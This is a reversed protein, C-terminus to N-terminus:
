KEEIMLRIFKAELDAPVQNTVESYHTDFATNTGSVTYPYNTWGGTVLNTSAELYYNLDSANKRQVHIYELGSVGKQFIPVFGTDAMGPNGGLAYEQWNNLADGDPNDTRGTETLGPYEDDLWNLYTQQFIVANATLILDDCRIESLRLESIPNGSEAPNACLFWTGGSAPAADARDIYAAPSTLASGGDLYVRYFARTQVANTYSVDVTLRVWQSTSISTQDLVTWANAYSAGQDVSHYVNLSQNADVVFWVKANSPFEVSAPDGVRHFQVVSDFWLESHAPDSGVTQSLSSADLVQSHSSEPLPWAGTYTASYNLATVIGEGVWGNTGGIDQGSAYGEFDAEFPLARLVTINLMATDSIFGDSVSVTWSNTGSDHKGPTGSLVGNTAVSLWAPGSVKSFSMPDGQPDTADDAISGSYAANEVADAKIIPDTTFAPPIPNGV